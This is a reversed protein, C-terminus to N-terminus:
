ARSSAPEGHCGRDDARDDPQEGHAGPTRAGPEGRPGALKRDALACPRAADIAEGDVSRIEAEEGHLRGEPARV